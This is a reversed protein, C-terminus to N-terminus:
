HKKDLSISRYHGIKGHYGSCSSIESDLYLSGPYTMSEKLFEAALCITARLSKCLLFDM